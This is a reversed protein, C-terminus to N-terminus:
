SLEGHKGEIRAFTHSLMLTITLSKTMQVSKYTLYRVWYYPMLFPISDHHFSFEIFFIKFILILFYVGILHNKLHNKTKSINKRTLAPQHNGQCLPLVTLALQVRAGCVKQDSSVLLKRIQENLDSFKKSLFSLLVFGVWKSHYLVYQCWYASIISVLRM